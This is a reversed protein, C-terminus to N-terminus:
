PIRRLTQPRRRVNQPTGYYGSNGYYGGNSGANGGYYGTNGYGYGGNNYGYGSNSGGSLTCYQNSCAVSEGQNGPYWSVGNPSVVHGDRYVRSGDPLYGAVTTALLRKHEVNYLTFAAAAAAAGYILNRTTTPNASAPLGTATVMSAALAITAVGPRIINNM